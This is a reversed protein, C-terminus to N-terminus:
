CLRSGSIRPRGNRDPREEGSASAFGTRGAAGPDLPEALDALSAIVIAVDYGFGNECLTVVDEITANNRSIRVKRRSLLDHIAAHIPGCGM